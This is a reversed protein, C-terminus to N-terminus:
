GCISQRSNAIEHEHQPPSDGIEIVVHYYYVAMAPLVFDIWIGYEGFFKVSILLLIIVVLGAFLVAELHSPFVTFFFSLILLFFLLGIIETWPLHVGWIEVRPWFKIPQQLSHIANIIVLGGPIKGLPTLHIDGGNGDYDWTGGIVVVSGQMFEKAELFFDSLPIKEAFPRAQFVHLIYNGERDSLCYKPLKSIKCGGGKKWGMSYTIRSERYREETELKLKPTQCLTISERKELNQFANNLNKYKEQLNGKDGCLAVTALLQVSKEITKGDGVPLWLLQRRQMGDASESFDVTGWQVYFSDKKVVPELFSPRIGTVEGDTYTFDRPLIIPPCVPKSTDKGEETRCQDKKNSPYQGLFGCLERDDDHLLGEKCTAPKALDMQGRALPTIRSLAVDVIILKAGADVANNIMNTIRNRPTFPQDPWDKRSEDDVDIFVFNSRTKSPPIDSFRQQIKIIWDMGANEMEDLFHTYERAVFLPTAVIIAIFVHARFKLYFNPQFIYNWLKIPGTYLIWVVLFNLQKLLFFLSNGLWRSARIPHRVVFTLTNSIKKVTWWVPQFIYDSFFSQPHQIVFWLGKLIYCVGNAIYKILIILIMLTLLKSM